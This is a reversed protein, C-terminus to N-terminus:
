RLNITKSIEKIDVKIERIDGRIDCINQYMMNSEGKTVFTSSSWGYVGVVIALLIGVITVFVGTFRVSGNSNNM